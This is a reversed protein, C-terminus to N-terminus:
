GGSGWCPLPGSSPNPRQWGSPGGLSRPVNSREGCAGQRGKGVACPPSWVRWWASFGHNRGLHPGQNSLHFHPSLDGKTRSTQPAQTLDRCLHPWGGAGSCLFGRSVNGPRRCKSQVPLRWPTFGGNLRARGAGGERWGLDGLFLLVGRAVRPDQPEFGPGAVLPAVLTGHWMEDWRRAQRGGGGGGAEPEPGVDLGLFRGSFTM